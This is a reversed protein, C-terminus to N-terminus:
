CFGNYINDELLGILLEKHEVSLDTPLTLRSLVYETAEGTQSTNYDPYAERAEQFFRNYEDSEAIQDAIIALDKMHGM